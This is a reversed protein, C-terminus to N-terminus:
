VLNNEKILNEIAKASSLNDNIYVTIWFIWKKKQVYYRPDSSFYGQKIKIRTKM